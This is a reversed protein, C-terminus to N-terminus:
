GVFKSQYFSAILDFRRRGFSFKQSIIINKGTTHLAATNAPIKGDRKLLLKVPSPGFYLRNNLQPNDIKLTNSGVMIANIESRWKHTLRKTM